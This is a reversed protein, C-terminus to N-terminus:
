PMTTLFRALTYPESTAFAGAADLAVSFAEISWNELAAIAFGGSDALRYTMCITPYNARGQGRDPRGEPRLRLEALGFRFGDGPAKVVAEKCCWAQIPDAAAVPYGASYAREAPSLISQVFREHSGPSRIMQVDVGVVAGRRFALLLWEGSHSASVHLDPADAM